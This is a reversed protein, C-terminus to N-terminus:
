FADTISEKTGEDITPLKMEEFLTQLTRLSKHLSVSRDKAQWLLNLMEEDAKVPGKFKTGEKELDLYFKAFSFTIDYSDKEIANEIIMFLYFRVDTSFFEYTLKESNWFSVKDKVKQLAKKFSTSPEEIYVYIKTRVTRNALTNLQKIDKQQPKKKVAILIKDTEGPRTCELDAGEEGRRDVKHVNYVEYGRERYLLTLVEQIEEESYKHWPIQFM